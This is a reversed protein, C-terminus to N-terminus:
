PEGHEFSDSRSFRTQYYYCEFYRGNTCKASVADAAAIGCFSGEFYPCREGKNGKSSSGFVADFFGM